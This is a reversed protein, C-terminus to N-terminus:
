LGLKKLEAELSAKAEYIKDHAIKLEKSDIHSVKEQFEKLLVSVKEHLSKTTEQVQKTVEADTMKNEM